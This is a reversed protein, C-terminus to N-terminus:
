RGRQFDEVTKRAHKLHEMPEWTADSLPYGQWKVLYYDRNRKRKHDLIKEVRYELEGVIVEPEPKPPTRGKFQTPTPYYRRLKEVHFKDFHHMTAPLELQVVTSSIVKKVKYPGIFRAAQKNNRQYEATFGPSSIGDIRILVEDGVKLNTAKRHKNAQFEQRQQALLISDKAAQLNTTIHRCFEEVAPPTTESIEEDESLVAPIYPHRGTDLYFPTYGISLLNRQTYLNFSDRVFQL